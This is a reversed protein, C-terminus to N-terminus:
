RGSFKGPPREHSGEADIRLKRSRLRNRATIDRLHNSLHGLDFQAMSTFGPGLEIGRHSEFTEPRVQLVIGQPLPQRGLLSPRIESQEVGPSKIICLTM